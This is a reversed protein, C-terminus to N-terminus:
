ISCPTGLRVATGVAVSHVVTGKSILGAELQWCKGGGWVTGMLEGVGAPCFAAQQSKGRPGQVARDEEEEGGEGRATSGLRHAPVWFRTAFGRCIPQLCALGGRIAVGPGKGMVRQQIKSVM